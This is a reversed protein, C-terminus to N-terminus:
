IRGTAGVAGCAALAMSKARGVEGRGAEGRGVRMGGGGWGWGM